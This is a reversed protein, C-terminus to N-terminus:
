DGTPSKDAEIYPLALELAEIADLTIGNLAQEVAHLTRDILDHAQERFRENRWNQIPPGALSWTTLRLYSPHCSECLFDYTGEAQSYVDALSRVFDMVHISKDDALGGWPLEVESRVGLVLRRTKALARDVEGSKHMQELTQRAFHTGGWLEFLFRAPLSITAFLGNRWLNLFAVSAQLAFPVCGAVVFLAIQLSATGEASPTYDLPIDPLRRVFRSLHPQWNEIRKLREHYRSVEQEWLDM